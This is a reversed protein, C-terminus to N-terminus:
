AGRAPALARMSWHALERGDAAVATVHLESVTLREVIEEPLRWREPLPATLREGAAPLGEPNPSVEIWAPEGSGGAGRLSSLAGLDVQWGPSAAARPAEGAGSERGARRGAWRVARGEVFRAFREGYRRRRFRAASAAFWERAKPEGGASQDFLHVAEAAPVYRATGGAQRARALWDVEEFYMRYGEDLPGVREWADRSVLLLAGSLAWSALPGRAQWHRRAHRRFSGRARRAAAASHRAAVRRLEWRRGFPEAPPLLLRRGEDWFFRPGAVAAGRDLAALLRPVCGPLILVDPNILMLREGRAAAVGRNVGAAFGLNAGPDLVRAPLAALAARGAEDSGNDVVVIEHELGAGALPALDAEIRAVARRLLDPTHYHVFVVSLRM